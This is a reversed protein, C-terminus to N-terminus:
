SRGFRPSFSACNLMRSWPFKHLHSLLVEPKDKAVGLASNLRDWCLHFCLHQRPYDASSGSLVKQIIAAAVEAYLVILQTSLYTQNDLKKDLSRGFLYESFIVILKVAEYQVDDRRVHATKILYELTGPTASVTKRFLHLKATSLRDGKVARKNLAADISLVVRILLLDTELDSSVM